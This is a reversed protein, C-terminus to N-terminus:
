LKLLSTTSKNTYIFGFKTYLSKAAINDNIVWLQYRSQDGITNDQIYKKVLHNAIGNGRCNLDTVIHGLWIINNKVEFQLAGCFQNDIYACIINKDNIFTNIENISMLDGTYKDLSGEFLQKILYAEETTEAYKLQVSTKNLEIQNFKGYTLSFNDRTLHEKFENREWFRILDLPKNQAGRYVIEMTIPKDTVLHVNENISNIFFYLQYFNDKEVLLFVNSATEYYFLKGENIVECYTEALVYNNTLTNKLFYKQFFLDVDSFSNIKNLSM